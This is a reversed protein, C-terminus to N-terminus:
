SETRAEDPLGAAGGRLRGLLQHAAHTMLRQQQIAQMQNHHAGGIGNASHNLAV